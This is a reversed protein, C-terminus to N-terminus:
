PLRQLGAPTLVGAVAVDHSEAPVDPLVEDDYVVAILESAPNRRGLARDYSGGGRGLRHGHRDVALAPVLLLEADAVSGPRASAPETTGRLGDRLPEGPLYRVWDLDADARLAPVILQVDLEHLTSLLSQTPPETGVSLYCAVVGPLQPLSRVVAALAHGASTVEHAPRGSRAKLLERRLKVKAALTVDHHDRQSSM